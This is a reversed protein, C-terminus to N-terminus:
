SSKKLTYDLFNQSMQFIPPKAPHNESEILFNPFRQYIKKAIIKNNIIPEVDQPETHKYVIALGAKKIWNEYTMIPSLVKQNPTTEPEIGITKLEEETLILHIFAKNLQRYLQGQQYLHGGHRSIWPHTRLYIKGNNTLVSKAQILVNIPDACHDLVDYILIVDYPGKEKMKELDTTLFYPNETSNWALTGTQNIDYGVSITTKQSAAYVAMHGEGCGFDLFKKNELSESIFVDIVNEARNKKDDEINPDCM